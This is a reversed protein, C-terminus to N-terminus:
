SCDDHNGALGKEKNSVAVQYAAAFSIWSGVKACCCPHAAPIVPQDQKKRLLSPSSICHVHDNSSSYVSDDSSKLGTSTDYSAHQAAIHAAWSRIIMMLLLM